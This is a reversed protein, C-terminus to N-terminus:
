TRSMSDCCRLDKPALDLRFTTGTPLFVGGHNVLDRRLEIKTRPSTQDAGAEAEATPLPHAAAQEIETEAPERASAGQDVALTTTASLIGLTLVALKASAKAGARPPRRGRQVRDTM